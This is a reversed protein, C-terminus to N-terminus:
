HAGFAPKYVVWAASQGVGNCKQGSGDLWKMRMFGQEGWVTGHSNKVIWVQDADDWGVLAVIHNIWQSDCANYIGGTYARWSESSSITVAIPGYTYIARKLEDTTPERGKEGVYGWESAKEHQAATANCAVDSAQYPFDSEYNAGVKTYFGFAFDGGECTGYSPQCSVLQQPSLTPLRGTKIAIASEFAATTGHAWCSGCYIPQAQDRIPGVVGKDRWDFAAPLESNSAAPVTWQAKDEWGPERKFGTAQDVPLGLAPTKGVTFTWGKEAGEKQLREVTQDVTEARASAALALASLILVSVGRM